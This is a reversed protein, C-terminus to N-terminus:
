GVRCSDTPSAASTNSPEMVSRGFALALFFFYNEEGSAYFLREFSRSKAKGPDPPREAAGRRPRGRHVSPATAGRDGDSVRIRTDDVSVDAGHVRVRVPGSSCAALLGGLMIMVVLKGM